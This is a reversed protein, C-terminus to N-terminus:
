NTPQNTWLLPDRARPPKGGIIKQEIKALKSFKVYILTFNVFFLSDKYVGLCPQGPSTFKCCVDYVYFAEV